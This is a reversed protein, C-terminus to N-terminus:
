GRPWSSRRLTVYQEVVGDDAQYRSRLSGVVEDLTRGSVLLVWADGGVGETSYYSGTDLNIVVVEGDVVHAAVRSSSCRRSSSDVAVETLQRDM